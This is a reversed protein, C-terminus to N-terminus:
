EGEHLQRRVDVAGGLDRGAIEGGALLEEGGQAGGGAVNPDDIVAKVAETGALGEVSVHVREIGHEAAAVRGGHCREVLGDAAACEGGDHEVM